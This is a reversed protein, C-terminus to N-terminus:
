ALLILNRTLNPHTQTLLCQIRREFVSILGTLIILCPLCCHNYTFSLIGVTLPFPHFVRKARCPLFFSRSLTGVTYEFKVDKEFKLAFKSVFQCGNTSIETLLKIVGEENRGCWQGSFLVKPSSFLEFYGRDRM